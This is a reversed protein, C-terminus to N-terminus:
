AAEKREKKVLDIGARIRENIGIAKNKECFWQKWSARREELKMPFPREIGPGESLDVKLIGSLESIEEQSWGNTILAEKCLDYASRFSDSETRRVSESRLRDLADTAM